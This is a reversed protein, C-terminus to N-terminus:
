NTSWMSSTTESEYSTDFSPTSVIDDIDEDIVRIPDSNTKKAPDSLTRQKRPAIRRLYFVIGAIVVVAFIIIYEFRLKCETHPLGDSKSRHIWNCPTCASAGEVTSYQNSDCVVPASYAGTPPVHWGAESTVPVSMGADPCYHGSNCALPSPHPDSTDPTHYGPSTETPVSVGTSPCYHGDHCPLCETVFIDSPPSYSGAACAVPQNHPSPCYKGTNCDPRHFLFTFESTLSFIQYKSSVVILSFSSEVDVPDLTLTLNMQTRDMIELTPSVTCSLWEVGDVTQADCTQGGLQFLAPFHGAFQLSLPEEISSPGQNDITLSITHSHGTLMDPGLVAANLVLSVGRSPATVTGAVAQDSVRYLTLYTDRAILSLPVYLDWGDVEDVDGSMLVTGNSATQQYRLPRSVTDMPASPNDYDDYCSIYTVRGLDQDEAFGREQREFWTLQEFSVSITNNPHVPQCIAPQVTIEGLTRTNSYGSAVTTVSLAASGVTHFDLSMKLSGDQLQSTQNIRLDELTFYSPGLDTPDTNGFMDIPQNFQCSFSTGATVTAQPIKNICANVDDTPNLDVSYLSGATYAETRLFQDLVHGTANLLRWGTTTSNSPLLTISISDNVEGITYESSPLVVWESDSTPSAEATWEVSFSSDMASAAAKAPLVRELADMATHVTWTPLDVGGTILHSSPDVSYMGSLTAASSDTFVTMLPTVTPPQIDLGSEKFLEEGLYVRIGSYMHHAPSVVLRTHVIGADDTHDKVEYQVSAWEGEIESYLHISPAPLNVLSPQIQISDKTCSYVDFALQMSINYADLEDSPLSPLVLLSAISDLDCTYLSDNTSTVSTQYVVKQSTSLHKLSYSHNSHLTDGVIYANTGTAQWSNESGYSITQLAVESFSSLQADSFPPVCTEAITLNPTIYGWDETSQLTFIETLDAPSVMPLTYTLHVEVGHTQHTFTLGQTTTLGSVTVTSFSDLSLEPAFQADFVEVDWSSAAEGDLTGVLDVSGLELLPDHCEVSSPVTNAAAPRLGLPGSCSSKVEHAVHTLQLQEPFTFTIIHEVSGDSGIVINFSAWNVGVDLLAWSGGVRVYVELCSNSHAPSLIATYVVSSLVEPFTYIQSPAPNADTVTHAKLQYVFGTGSYISADTVPIVGVVLKKDQFDSRIDSLQINFSSAVVDELAPDKGLIAELHKSNVTSGGLPFPNDGQDEEGSVSINLGAQDALDDSLLSESGGFLVPLSRVDSDGPVAYQSWCLVGMTYYQGVTLGTASLPALQIGSSTTPLSLPASHIQITDLVGGTINTHYLASSLFRCDSFESQYISSIVTEAKFTTVGPPNAGFYVKAAASPSAIDGSAMRAESCGVVTFGYQDTVVACASYYSGNVLNPLSPLSIELTNDAYGTLNTFVTSGVLVASSPLAELNHTTSPGFGKPVSYIGSTVNHILVSRMATSSALSGIRMPLDFSTPGAPVGIAQSPWNTNTGDSFPWVMDPSDLVSSDRYCFTYGTIELTKQGGYEDIAHIYPIYDATTLNTFADSTLSVTINVASETDDAAEIYSLLSATASLPADPNALNNKLLVEFTVVDGSSFDVAMIDDPNSVLGRPCYVFSLTVNMDSFLVLITENAVEEDSDVVGGAQLALLPQDNLVPSGSRVLQDTTTSNACVSGFCTNLTFGWTQRQDFAPIYLKEQVKSLDLRAFALSVGDVTTANNQMVISTVLLDDGDCAANDDTIGVNLGVADEKHACFGPLTVDMTISAATSALGAPLPSLEVNMATVGQSSIEPRLKLFTPVPATNTSVLAICRPQAVGHFDNEALACLLGNFEDPMAQHHTVYEVSLGFDLTPDNPDAMVAGLYSAGAPMSLGVRLRPAILQLTQAMETHNDTMSVTVLNVATINIYYPDSIGDISLDISANPGFRYQRQTSLLYAALPSYASFSDGMESWNTDVRLFEISPPEAFLNIGKSFVHTSAQQFDNTVTAAVTIGSSEVGDFMSLPLDQLSSYTMTYTTAVLDETDPDPIDVTTPTVTIATQPPADLEDLGADYSSRLIWDYLPVGPNTYVSHTVTVNVTIPVDYLFTPGVQQVDPSSIAVTVALYPNRIRYVASATAVSGANSTTVAKLQLSHVGSLYDPDALSATAASVTAPHSSTWTKGVSTGDEKNYRASVVVKSVGSRFAPVTWSMGYSDTALISDEGDCLWIQSEDGVVSVTPLHEFAVTSDTTSTDGFATNSVVSVNHTITEPTGTVNTDCMTEPLCITATSEVATVSANWASASGVSPQVTITFTETDLVDVYNPVDASIHRLTYCASVTGSPYVPPDLVTNKPTVAPQLPLVQPRLTASVSSSAVVTPAGSDLSVIIAIPYVRLEETQAVSLTRICPSSACALSPKNQTAFFADYDYTALLDDDPQEFTWDLLVECGATDNPCYADYTFVLDYETFFAGNDTTSLNSPSAYATTSTLSSYSSGAYVVTDLADRTYLGSRTAQTIELVLPRNNSPIQSGIVLEVDLTSARDSMQRVAAAFVTTEFCDLLALKISTANTNASSPLDSLNVNLADGSLYTLNDMRRTTSSLQLTSTPVLPTLETEIHFQSSSSCGIRGLSDTVCAELVGVSPLDVGSVNVVLTSASTTLQDVTSLVTVTDGESNLLSIEMSAAHDAEVRYSVYMLDNVVSMYDYHTDPGKSNSITVPDTLSLTSDVFILISSIFAEENTEPNSMRFVIFRSEDWLEMDDRVFPSSSTNQYLAILDLVSLTVSVDGSDLVM